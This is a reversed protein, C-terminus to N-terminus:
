GSILVARPDREPTASRRDRRGLPYKFGMLV